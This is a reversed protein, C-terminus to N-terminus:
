NGAIAQRRYSENSGASMQTGRNAMQMMATEYATPAGSDSCSSQVYQDYGTVQGFQGTLNHVADTANQQRMSGVFQSTNGYRKAQMDMAEKLDTGAASTFGGANLTIYEMYQPRSVNNEVVVRDEASNCGGRKTYFSDPCAQRGATDVGNWLPCVMNNPNLFRDSEIRNAYGTNVKCTRVASEISTIGVTTM